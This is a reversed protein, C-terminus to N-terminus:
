EVGMIGGSEGIEKYFILIYKDMDFLLLFSFVVFHVKHM